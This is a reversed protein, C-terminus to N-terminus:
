RQAELALALLRDLLQPYPLGSAEWLKPYMSVPTFGPITNIESLYLEGTEKHLLFDVRAMGRADIARYAALALARAQEVLEDSLPAPILLQSRDDYYKAQYTYFEDAPVVEGPISAEPEDNGLVSVEIERAPIGREVIIRRDYRAAEDFGQRLQDRHKAKTVGISSGLNAPKVFLPYPGLAESADLVAEPDRRWQHRTFVRYPLVPLGHARMVDKFLGKDMALASAAVGAGVYPVGALELLGQLTGDEGWPGHLVPFVVDLTALRELVADRWAWLGAKTPDPPIMAPTLGQPRGQPGQALVELADPGFWWAGDPTIAIPYVEYREPDLHAMVSRASMLSVDHEASRGGFIVGVRLTM